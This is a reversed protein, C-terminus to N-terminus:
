GIIGGELKGHFKSALVSLRRVRVKKQQSEPTTIVKRTPEQNLFDINQKNLWQSFGLATFKNFRETYNWVVGLIDKDYVYNLKFLSDPFHESEPRYAYNIFNM